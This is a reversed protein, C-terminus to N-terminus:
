LLNEKKWKRAGKYRNINEADVTIIDNVVESISLNYSNKWKNDILYIWIDENSIDYGTISLLRKKVNFVPLLTLYLEKQSTFEM